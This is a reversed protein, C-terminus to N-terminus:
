NTYIDLVEKTILDKAYLSNIYQHMTKMGFKSGSAMQSEIQQLKNERILNSVPKTNVLTEMALIRGGNPMPLLKQSLVGKLVFSMQLRIQSQQEPPFVDVIRSVTQMASNTHLTALVLHGTEAITLCARITELDRIEGILVVDPDQRMAYKLAKAFEYTDFGIERQSITSKNHRYVFEIPDEITLIHAKHKSNIEQIMSALTTSKGSGTAGTVLILGPTLDILRHVIGPLGLDEMTKIEFPIARFAGAVSGRQIYLNGRFRSLGKVAFSFDIEKNREFVRVQEESLVSYCYNKSDEPSIVQDDLSQLYGDTRIKVFDGSVIHLDSSGSKVMKSLFYKMKKYYENNERM